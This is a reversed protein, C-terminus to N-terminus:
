WQGHGSSGSLPWAALQDRGLRERRQKQNVTWVGTRHQTGDPLLEVHPRGPLGGGEREIYHALAQIGTQFATTGRGSGAAAGARAVTTRPRVARAPKMGLETLRRQQEANLRRFDRRQTALWRGIDEGHWTM